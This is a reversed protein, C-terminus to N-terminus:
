IEVEQGDELGNGRQKGINLQAPRTNVEEQRDELRNGRQESLTM